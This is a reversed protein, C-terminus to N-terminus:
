RKLAIHEHGLASVLRADVSVTRDVAAAAARVPKRILVTPQDALISRARLGRLPASAQRPAPNKPKRQSASACLPRAPPFAACRTRPAQM